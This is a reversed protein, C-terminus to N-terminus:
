KLPDFGSATGAPQLRTQQVTTNPVKSATGIQRPRPAVGVQRNPTTEELDITEPLRLAQDDLKVTRKTCLVQRAESRSRSFSRRSITSPQRTTRIVQLCNCSSAGATIASRRLISRSPPRAGVRYRHVALEEVSVQM